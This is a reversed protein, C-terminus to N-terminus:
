GQQPRTTEAGGAGCLAGEVLEDAAHQQRIFDEPANGLVGNVSLVVSRRGDATVGSDTVYGAGGGPHGWYVGGCPLTRQFLGLGYRAGPLIEALGPDVPVTRTMAALQAPRLLRGGLLARFFTNLDRTTSTIAAEPDVVVQETVDVQRGTEFVQYGRAHPRPVLPSLGPWSTGTLGLPRVVRHEVETWWSRGTVREIIMDVLLYGTSSYGWGRGPKFDPRHAVARAVLQAPTYVDYRHRQFDAETTYDPFDDHIGSTHQLLHRVTIRRGDNGNGRVVGPLWREVPDDLRLRGEGVLQLAVTAVFAKGTSAVRFHGDPPVPRGTALDGFGSTAVEHRGDETVLRAQAGPLGLAHIADVGPQLDPAPVGLSAVAALLLLTRM